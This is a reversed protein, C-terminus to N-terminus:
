ACGLEQLTQTLHGDSNFRRIRSMAQDRLQRVRERSLKMQNSIDRISKCVHHIGYINSLIEGERSPIKNLLKELFKQNMDHETALDIPGIHNDVLTDELRITGDNNVPASLSFQKGAISDLQQLSEDLDKKDKCKRIAKHLKIQQNLPLRVLSGKESIARAIFAKIWWVAYTIFKVGRTYDFSEIARWLGIAGEDILEERSLTESYFNRSVQIVFKMNACLIKRKACLNGKRILKFLETEEAQTLPRQDRFKEKIWDLTQNNNSM